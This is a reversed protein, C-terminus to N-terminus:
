SRLEKELFDEVTPEISTVIDGEFKSKSDISKKIGSFIETFFNSYLTSSNRSLTDEYYSELGYRGALTDGKYGVLGLVNAALTRLPYFRYQDKYILVGVIKLGSIKKAPPEEIKKTLAVYLSDKQAARALFNKRDIPVIANIKEFAAEPDKLAKPNIGLTYGVKLTASGVTSGDKNQFFINGRSFISESPRLYQREARARFDKGSVIQLFYLKGVLLLTIGFVLLSILRLRSTQRPGM